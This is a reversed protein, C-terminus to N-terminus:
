HLIILLGVHITRVKGKEIDVGDQDGQLEEYGHDEKIVCDPVELLKAGLM